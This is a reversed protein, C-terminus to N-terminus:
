ESELVFPPVIRAINQHTGQWSLRYFTLCVVTKHREFQTRMKHSKYIQESINM